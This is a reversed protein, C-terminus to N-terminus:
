GDFDGTNKSGPRSAWSQDVASSSSAFSAAKSDAQIQRPNINQNQASQTGYLKRAEFREEDSVPATDLISLCPLRSIVYYRYEQYEEISKHFFYNPCAENQLMCLFRLNPMNIRLKEIFISITQIRNKSVSLSHLRQLKPLVVNSTLQNGDLVLSELQDFAGIPGLSRDSLRNYSADLHKVVSAYEKVVAGNIFELDRHAISLYDHM